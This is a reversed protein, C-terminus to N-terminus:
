CFATAAYIIAAALLRMVSHLSSLVHCPVAVPWINISACRGTVRSTSHFDSSAPIYLHTLRQQRPKRNVPLATRLVARMLLSVTFVCRAAGKTYLHDCVERDGHLRAIRVPGEPVPDGPNRAMDQQLSARMEELMLWLFHGALESATSFETPINAAQLSLM